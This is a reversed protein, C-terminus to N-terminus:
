TRILWALLLFLIFQLLEKDKYDVLKSTEKL